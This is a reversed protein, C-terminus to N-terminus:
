NDCDSVYHVDCEDDDEDTEDDYHEEGESDYATRRPDVQLRGPPQAEHRGDFLHAHAERSYPTASARELGDYHHVKVRGTSKDKLIVQYSWGGRLVKIKCTVALCTLPSKSARWSADSQM